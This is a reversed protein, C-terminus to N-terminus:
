TRFKLYNITLDSFRYISLLQADEERLISYIKKNIIALKSLYNNFQYNEFNKALIITNKPEIEAMRKLIEFIIKEKKSSAHLDKFEAYINKALERIQYIKMIVDSKEDRTFKTGILANEYTNIITVDKKANFKWIVSLVMTLELFNLDDIKM